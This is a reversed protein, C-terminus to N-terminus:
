GIRPIGMGPIRLVYSDEARAERWVRWDMSLQPHTYGELFEPLWGYVIEEIVDALYDVAESALRDRDVNAPLSM